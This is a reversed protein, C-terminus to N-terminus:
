PKVHQKEKLAQSWRDDLPTVTVDPAPVKRRAAAATEFNLTPPVALVIRAKGASFQAPDVPHLQANLFVGNHFILLTDPTVLQESSTVPDTSALRASALTVGRNLGASKSESRAVDVTAAGMSVMTLVMISFFAMALALAIETMALSGTDHTM